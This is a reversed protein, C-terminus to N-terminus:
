DDEGPDDPIEYRLPLSAIEERVIRRVDEMSLGRQEPLLGRWELWRRVHAPDIGNM